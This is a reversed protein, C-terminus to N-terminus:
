ASRTRAPREASLALARALRPAEAPLLSGVSVRIGPPSHHRFREGPAVAWGADLLRRVAAQEDPVPIWVNFGSRGHAAVGHEALAHILASRRETYAEAARQLLREVEVDTWLAVVLGQLLHSVWGAGLQQRNEVRSITQSDGAMVGLRLDPGLSKSVSRMFAWRERATSWLSALPTGAVPGAHDDEIVLVDGRADLLGRLERARQEDLAAGSPNQARPTGIVAALPGRLAAELAEPLYGRDDVPLPEPVLGLTLLLDHIVPYGPDEVAVRDGPRLRAVLAREIGDLAGGVVLLSDPPVGEGALDAAALQRLTQNHAPEGYLRQRPQLSQLALSLDPLLDIDPNGTTLDRLGEPVPTQGRQLPPPRSAIRTGRRGSATVLGRLQLDRYAAAVTTPSVGLHRALRRVPPLATGPAVRDAEVLAEVSASIAGAREGAILDLLDGPM